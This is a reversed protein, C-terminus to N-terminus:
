RQVADCRRKRPAPREPLSTRRETKLQRGLQTSRACRPAADRCSPVCYRPASRVDSHFAGGTRPDSREADRSPLTLRRARQVDAVREDLEDGTLNAYVSSLKGAGANIIADIAYGCQDHLYWLFLTGCGIKENPGLDDDDVELFNDRSSNLWLDTVTSSFGGAPTPFARADPYAERFLKASLFLSLSEGKNGEHKPTFWPNNHPLSMNRMFMESVEAGLLCRAMQTPTGVSLRAEGLYIDVHMVDTILGQWSAMVAETAIGEKNTTISNLSVHIPPSMDLGRGSFWSMMQAFDADCYRMLDRALDRGRQASLAQDYQFVFYDTSGSNPLGTNVYPM